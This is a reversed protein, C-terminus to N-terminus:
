PVVTRDGRPLGRRTRRGDGDWAMRGPRGRWAREGATASRSRAPRDRDRPPHRACGPPRRPRRAAGQLLDAPRRLAVPSYQLAGSVICRTSPGGGIAGSAPDFGTGAPDADVKGRVTATPEIGRRIGPEDSPDPRGTPVLQA